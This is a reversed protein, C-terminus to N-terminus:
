LRKRNQQGPDFDYAAPTSLGRTMASSQDPRTAGVLASEEPQGLGDVTLQDPEFAAPGAGREDLQQDGLGSAVGVQDDADVERERERGPVELLALEGRWSHASSASSASVGAM